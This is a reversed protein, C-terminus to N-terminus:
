RRTSCWNCLFAVVKVAVGAIADVNNTPNTPHTTPRLSQCGAQCCEGIKLECCRVPFAQGTIAGSPCAAVCTGCGRCLIDAVDAIRVLANWSIAKYPCVQLCTGCGSCRMADVVAVQPDVVLDRGDVLEFATDRRRVAPFPRM